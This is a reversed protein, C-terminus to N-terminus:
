ELFVGTHILFIPQHVSGVGLLWKTNIFFLVFSVFMCEASVDHREHMANHHGKQPSM